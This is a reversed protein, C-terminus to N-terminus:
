HFLKGLLYVFIIGFILILSNIKRKSKHMEPILDSAALYIFSGATISLANGLINPQLNRILFLSVIAGFPTALAVVLSYIWIKQKKLNTHMLIGTTILGEPFEHLIVAVATFIGISSSVEFGIAIAIGDLLSHIALGIFSMIGLRHVECNAENCPHITILYNQIVYFILFGIFVFISVNESIELSEPILHLFSTALM